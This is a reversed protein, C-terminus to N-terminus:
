NEFNPTFHNLVGIAKSGKLVKQTLGTLPKMSMSNSVVTTPDSTILENQFARQCQTIKAEVEDVEQPSPQKSGGGDKYKRILDVAMMSKNIVELCFKTKDESM